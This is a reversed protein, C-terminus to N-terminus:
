HATQTRSCETIVFPEIDANEWCNQRNKMIIDLISIFQQMSVTTLVAIYVSKRSIKLNGKKNCLEKVTQSKQLHLLLLYTSTAELM